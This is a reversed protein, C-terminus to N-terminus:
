FTFSAGATLSYFGSRALSSGLIRKEPDIPMYGFAAEGLTQNERASLVQYYKFLAGISINPTVRVDIGTGLYGLFSSLEYDASHQNAYYPTGYNMTQSLGDLIRSDYNVFSKAYAAGGVLLPRIRSNPGLFHLKLGADFVNQKLAFTEFNQDWSAGIIMKYQNVYPNQSNAVIGYESFTYGIELSLNDSAQVGLAFGASYRPKVLFYNDSSMGSLGARPVVSIRTREESSAQVSAESTAASTVTVSDVLEVGDIAPTSKETVPATVVQEVPPTTLQAAVPATAAQASAVTKTDVGLLEATRKKEDRLRLEELREQLIDENQLEARMRQRRLLESKSLNEVVPTEAAPADQAALSTTAPLSPIAQVEDSVLAKESTNLVQRTQERDEVQAAQQLDEEFVLEAKAQSLVMFGALSVIQWKKFSGM